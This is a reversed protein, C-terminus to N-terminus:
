NIYQSELRVFHYIFFTQSDPINISCVLVGCASHASWKKEKESVIDSPIQVLIVLLDLYFVSCPGMLTSLM